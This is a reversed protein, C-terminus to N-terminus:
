GKTSLLARLTTGQFVTAVLIFHWMIHCKMTQKSLISRWLFSYLIKQFDGGILSHGRVKYLPWESKVTHTLTLSLQIYSKPFNWQDLHKAKCLININNTTQHYCVLLPPFSPLSRWSVSSPRLIASLKRCTVHCSDRGCDTNLDRELLVHYVSFMLM